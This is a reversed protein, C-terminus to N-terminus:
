EKHRDEDGVYLWPQLVYIEQVCSALMSLNGPDTFLQSIKQPFLTNIVPGHLWRVIDDSRTLDVNHSNRFSVVAEKYKAKLDDFEFHFNFLYEFVPRVFVADWVLEDFGALECPLFRDFQEEQNLRDFRDLNCNVWEVHVAKTAKFALDLMDTASSVEISEISKVAADAYRLIDSYSELGWIKAAQYVPSEMIEHFQEYTVVM